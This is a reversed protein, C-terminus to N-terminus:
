RLHRSSAPETTRLGTVREPTPKSVPVPRAFSIVLLGVALASLTNNYLVLGFVAATLSLLFFRFDPRWLHYAAAILAIGGFLQTQQFDLAARRFFCLAEGTANACLLEIERSSTLFNRIYFAAFLAGFAFLIALNTQRPTPLFMRM